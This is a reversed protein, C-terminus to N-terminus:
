GVLMSDRGVHGEVDRAAEKHGYGAELEEVILELVDGPAHRGSRADSVVEGSEGPDAPDLHRRARGRV